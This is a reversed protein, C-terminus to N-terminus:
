ALNGVKLDAIVGDRTACSWTWTGEHAFRPPREQMTEWLLSSTDVHHLDSCRTKGECAGPLRSRWPTDSPPAPRRETPDPRREVCTPLSFLAHARRARRRFRCAWRRRHLQVETWWPEGCNCGGESLEPATAGSREVSAPATAGRKRPTHSCNCRWIWACGKQSRHHSVHHNTRRPANSKSRMSSALWTRARFCHSLSPSTRAVLLFVPSFRRSTRCHCPFCAGVAFAVVSAVCSPRRPICLGMHCPVVDSLLSWSERRRLRKTTTKSSLRPEHM